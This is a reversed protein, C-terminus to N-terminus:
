SLSSSFNQRRNPQSPPTTRIERLEHIRNNVTAIIKQKLINGHTERDISGIRESLIQDGLVKSIWKEFDGRKFHFDVSKLDVSELGDIFSSLSTAMVSTPEDVGKYFHFGESIPVKRLIKSSDESDMVNDKVVSRKM